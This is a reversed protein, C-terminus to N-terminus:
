VVCMCLVMVRQVSYLTLSPGLQLIGLCFMAYLIHLQGFQLGIM